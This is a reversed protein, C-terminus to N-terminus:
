HSQKKGKVEGTKGVDASTRGFLDSWTKRLGTFSSGRAYPDDLPGTVRITVVEDKFVNLMDSIPGLQLAGPNRTNMTLDLERTAFDMRGSGAVVLSPAEFRIFDFHIDDGDLLYRASARDFSGAGPLSLNIAHLIALSIPQKYLSADRVYLAGRGRRSADRNYDAEISLSASLLGSELKRVLPEREDAPVDTIPEETAPSLEPHIFPEVEVDHLTLDFRYLSPSGLLVAGSGILIGNYMTGRLEDLSLIDARDRTSLSMTLPRILRQAVILQDADLQLDILPLKQGRAKVVNITMGGRLDTVPVGIKATTQDLLVECDFELDYSEAQLPRVMLRADTVRYSGDIKLEDIVRVAAAPLVARTINDLRDSEATFGVAIGGEGELNVLGSLQVSGHDFEIDLDELELHSPRVTVKGSLDDFAFRQDRFDFAIRDPLIALVYDVDRLDAKGNIDLTANFTGAPHYTQWLDDLRIRVPHEPPLLDIVSHDYSFQDADIHLNFEPVPQDWDATGGVTVRSDHRRGTIQELIISARKLQMTGNIEDLTFRGSWPTIAGEHIEANMMYDIQGADNQFIRGSATLSGKLNLIRVWEDKPRPISQLLVPDIPLTVDDIHLDPVLTLGRPRGIKGHIRGVVAGTPSTLSIDDVEIHSRAITISGTTCTFPYPWYRFMVNAGEVPFSTTVEYRADEGLDRHISVDVQKLVGGLTFVQPLVGNDRVVSDVAECLLRKDLYGAFAQPDMFLKMIERHKPEMADTLHQDIPIDTCNVTMNVEAGERPPQVTGNVCIRGGAPGVGDLDIVEVQENSFRIRGTLRSVPYPFGHYRAVVDILEVQGAYTMPGGDQRRVIQAQAAFVGSPQFRDYVKRVQDPLAYLYDPQDPITFPETEASISFPSETGFGDIRGELTYHIDEILGQINKLNIVQDKIDFLGHVHRIRTKYQGYPLALSANDIAIQASELQFQNDRGLHFKVKVTPLSGEPDLHDWWERLQRPLLTRQPQDFSFHDLRLEVSMRRTDFSGTLNPGPPVDPEYVQGLKFHYTGPNQDNEVLQGYFLMAGVSQYQGNVIEGFRVYGETIEIEPLTDITGGDDYRGFSVNEYNFRHADQNETIYLTPQVISLSDPRAEGTILSWPSLTVQAQAAQFLKKEDPGGQPVDLRLDHLRIDIKMDAFTFDASGIVVKGGTMKEILEAAIRNIRDPHTFYFYGSVLGGILLLIVILTVRFIM